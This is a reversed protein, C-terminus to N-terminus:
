EDGFRHAGRESAKRALRDTPQSLSVSRLCRFASGSKVWVVQVTRPEQVSSPMSNPSHRLAFGKDGVSAGRRGFGRTTRAMTLSPSVRVALSREVLEDLVADGIAGRVEESLTVFTTAILL